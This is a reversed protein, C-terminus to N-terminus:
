PCSLSSPQSDDLFDRCACMKRCPQADPLAPIVTRCSFGSQCHRDTPDGPNRSQGGQCDDDTRCTVSCLAQTDTTRQEPPLLCLRSPCSLTNQDLYYVTPSAAPAGLSCPAGLKDSDCGQGALLGAAV